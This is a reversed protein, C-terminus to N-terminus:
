QPQAASGPRSVREDREWIRLRLWIGAVLGVILSAFVARAAMEGALQTVVSTLFLSTAGGLLLVDSLRALREPAITM